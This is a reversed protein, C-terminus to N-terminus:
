VRIDVSCGEKSFIFSESFELCSYIAKMTRELAHTWTKEETSGTWYVTFNRLNDGGLSVGRRLFILYEIWLRWHGNVEIDVIESPQCMGSANMRSSESSCLSTASTLLTLHPSLHTTTRVWFWYIELIFDLGNRRDRCRIVVILFQKIFHCLFTSRYGQLNRLRM